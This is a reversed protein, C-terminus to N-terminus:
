AFDDEELAVAVSFLFEFFELLKHDKILVFNLLSPIFSGLDLVGVLKGPDFGDLFCRLWGYFLCFYFHLERVFGLNELIFKRWIWHHFFAKWKCISGVRVVTM